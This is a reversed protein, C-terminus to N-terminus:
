VKREYLLYRKQLDQKHLLVGGKAWFLATTYRKTPINRWRRRCIGTRNTYYFGLSGSVSSDFNHIANLSFEPQDKINNQVENWFVEKFNGTFTWKDSTQISFDFDIESPINVNIIYEPIVSITYFSDIPDIDYDTEDYKFYDSLEAKTKYSVGFGVNRSNDLKLKFYTGIEFNSGLITSKGSINYISQSETYHNLNYKLGIALTIYDPIFDEFNYSALLSYYNLLNKWEPTFYEGTGEPHQVTTIPIPGIDFSANYRQEAGIGLSFDNYHYVAGFSQPLYNYIRSTGIGIAYANTITTQFQYSLGISLNEFQNITAPNMASLNSINNFIGSTGKSNLLEIGFGQPFLVVERGNSRQGFSYSELLFFVSIIIVLIKM